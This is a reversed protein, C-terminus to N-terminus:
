VYTNMIYENLVDERPLKIYSDAKEKIYIRKGNLPDVCNTFTPNSTYIVQSPRFVCKDVGECHKEFWPKLTKCKYNESLMFWLHAKIKDSNLFMGNSFQCVYSTNHFSEHLTKIFTEVAEHRNGERHLNINAPKPFNDIDLVLWNKPHDIITQKYVINDEVKENVIRRIKHGNLKLYYGYETIKGRVFCTTRKFSSSEVLAHLDYIDSIAVEKFSFYKSFKRDLLKYEGSENLTWSKNQPVNSELLTVLNTNKRM